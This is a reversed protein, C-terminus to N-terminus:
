KETIIYLNNKIHIMLANQEALEAARSVELNLLALPSGRRKGRRGEEGKGTRQYIGEDWKEREEQGPKSFSSTKSQKCQWLILGLHMLSFYQKPLSRAHPFAHSLHM